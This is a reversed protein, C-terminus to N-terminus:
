VGSALGIILLVLGFVLVLGMMVLWIITLIGMIKFYTALNEAALRLQRKDGTEFGLTLAEGASKIKWGMILPIWGVLAYIITICQLIGGIFMVWGFIKIMNRADYLPQMVNGSIAPGSKKSVPSSYPSSPAPMSVPLPAVPTAMAPPLPSAVPAAIPAPPLGIPEMVPTDLVNGLEEFNGGLGSNSARQSQEPVLCKEDCKPCRAKKGIYKEPVRLNAGCKHCNFKIPM